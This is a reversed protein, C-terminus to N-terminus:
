GPNELAQYASYLLQLLWRRDEEFKILASTWSFLQASRVKEGHRNKCMAFCIHPVITLAEGMPLIIARAVRDLRIVYAFAFTFGPESVQFVQAATKAV